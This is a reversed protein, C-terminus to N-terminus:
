GCRGPTSGSLEFLDDVMTSLRAAEASIRRAYDAIEDPDVVVSDELAESMARIGALPTRLDHSVWAVLQRRSAEAAREAARQKEAEMAGLAIRRGLYVAVPIVVVAILACATAAFALMPTYMFDSVSVVFLLVALIPISVLAAINATASRRRLLYLVGLEVAATAVAALLAWPLIHLLDTLM